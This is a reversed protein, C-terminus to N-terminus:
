GRRRTPSAAKTELVSTALGAEAVPKVAFAKKLAKRQKPTAKSTRASKKAKTASRGAAKTSKTTSAKATRKM